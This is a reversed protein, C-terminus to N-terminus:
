ERDDLTTIMMFPDEIQIPIELAIAADDEIMTSMMRMSMTMITTTLQRVGEAILHGELRVSHDIAATFTMAM